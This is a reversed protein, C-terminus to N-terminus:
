AGEEGEVMRRLELREQYIYDEYGHWYDTRLPERVAGPLPPAADAPHPRAERAGPQPVGLRM